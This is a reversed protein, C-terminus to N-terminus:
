EHCHKNILITQIYPICLTFGHPWFHYFNNSYLLVSFKLAYPLTYKIYNILFWWVGVCKISFIQESKFWTCAQNKSIVKTWSTQMHTDRDGLSNVLPTINHSISGKHNTLCTKPIKRENIHCNFDHCIM